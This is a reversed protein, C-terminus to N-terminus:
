GLAPALALARKAPPGGHKIGCHTAADGKGNLRISGDAGAWSWGAAALLVATSAAVNRWSM